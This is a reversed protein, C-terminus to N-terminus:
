LAKEFVCLSSVITWSHRLLRFLSNVLYKHQTFVVHGDCFLTGVVFAQLISTNDAHALILYIMKQESRIAPLSDRSPVTTAAATKERQARHVRPDLPDPVVTPDTQDPIAKHDPNATPKDATRVPRVKRALQDLRDLLVLLVRKEPSTISKVQPEPLAKLDKADLDDPQDQPAPWALTEKGETTARSPRRERLAQRDRPVPQEPQVPHVPRAFLARSQSRDSRKKPKVMRVRGATPARTEM